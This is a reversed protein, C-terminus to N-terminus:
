PLQPRLVRYATTSPASTWAAVTAVRTSGVYGTILRPEYKDAAQGVYLGTYFDDIASSGVALAITTSSGSTSTGANLAPREAEIYLTGATIGVGVSISTVNLLLADAAATGGAGRYYRGNASVSTFLCTKGTEVAQTAPDFFDGTVTITASAGAWGSFFNLVPIGGCSWSYDTKIDAGDTLTGTGAGTVVYKAVANAFTAGLYSGGKLCEFYVNNRTPNSALRKINRFLTYWYPHALLQWKTPHTVNYYTMLSDLDIVAAVPQKAKAHRGLADFFGTLEASLRVIGSLRDRASIGARLLVKEVDEDNAKLIDSVLSAMPSAAGYGGLPEGMGYTQGSLSVVRLAAQVMNDTCKNLTELGILAM